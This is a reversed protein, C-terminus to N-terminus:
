FREDVTPRLKSRELLTGASLEGRKGKWMGRMGVTQRPDRESRGKEKEAGSSVKKKRKKKHEEESRRKRQQNGARSGQFARALRAAIVLLFGGEAGETKRGFLNSGRVKGGGGGTAVGKRAAPGGRPDGAEQRGNAPRGCCRWRMSSPSFPLLVLFPQAPCFIALVCLLVQMCM